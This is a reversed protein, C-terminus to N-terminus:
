KAPYSFELPQGADKLAQRLEKARGDEGLVQETSAWGNSVMLGAAVGAAQGTSWEEPHLRTAANAKYSQAMGKGAVMANTVGGITLARYPIYYPLVTHNAIYPPINAGCDVAHIDDNYQGIAITDEFRFGKGGESAPPAVPQLPAGSDDCRGALHCWLLRFNNIGTVVRRSGRLYPFKM